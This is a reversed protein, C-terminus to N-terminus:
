SFREPVLLAAALYVTLGIAVALGLSTTWDVTLGRQPPPGHRRGAVGIRGPLDRGIRDM